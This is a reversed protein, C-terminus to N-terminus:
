EKLIHSVITDLEEDSYYHIAVVGGKKGHRLTVKTGLRRRLREEIDLVEPPSVTKAPRAIRQGSLQRVLAETQRVNMENKLVTQLAAL